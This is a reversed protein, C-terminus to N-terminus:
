KADKAATKTADPRDNSPQRTKKTVKPPNGLDFHKAAFALTAALNRLEKSATRLQDPTADGELTRGIRKCIDSWSEM